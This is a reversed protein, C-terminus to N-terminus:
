HEKGQQKAGCHRCYPLSAPIQAGCGICYVKARRAKFRRFGLFTGAAIAAIIIGLIGAALGKVILDENRTPQPAPPTPPGMVSLTTVASQGGPGSGAVVLLYSGPKVDKSLELTLTSQSPATLASPELKTLSGNPAGTFILNVYNPYGTDSSASVTFTINEGPKAQATDPTISLSYTPGSKVILTLPKYREKYLQGQGGSAKITLSYTGAPLGTTTTLTLTSNYPPAGSSPAFSYSIGAPVNSLGLQVPQVTGSVLKVNVTFTASSALTQETPTATVYFDFERQPVEPPPPPPTYSKTVTFKLERHNNVKNQDDYKQNPDVDCALTHAGLTAKWPQSYVVVFGMNAGYNVYGGFLETGDLRCAVQVQLPATPVPDAEVLTQFATPEDQTPQYPAVQISTISWDTKGGAGEPQESAGVVNVTFDFKDPFLQKGTEPTEYLSAAQLTWPGNVPPVNAGPIKITVSTSGTGEADNMTDSALEGNPQAFLKKDWISITLSSGKSLKRELEVTVTVDQGYTVESPHKVDTIHCHFDEVPTTTLKVTRKEYALVNSADTPDGPVDKYLGVMYGGTNEHKQGPHNEDQYQTFWEFACSGSAVCASCSGGVCFYSSSAVNASLVESFTGQGTLKEIKHDYESNPNNIYYSLYSGFTLHVTATQGEPIDYAGEVQVNFQAGWQILAPATVKYLFFRPKYPASCSKVSCDLKVVPLHVTYSASAKGASGADINLEFDLVWDQPTDLTKGGFDLPTHADCCELEYSRSGSFFVGSPVTKVNWQGSISDRYKLTVVTYRNVDPQFPMSYDVFLIFRYPAGSSFHADIPSLPPEVITECPRGPDCEAFPPWAAQEKSWASPTFSPDYKLIRVYNIKVVPPAFPDVITFQCNASLGQVFPGSPGTPPVALYFKLTLTWSYGAPFPQDLEDAVKVDFTVERTGKSGTQPSGPSGLGEWLPSSLGGQVRAWGDPMLGNLELYVERYGGVDYDFQGTMSIVEGNRAQLPCKLLPSSIQASVPGVHLGLIISCILV